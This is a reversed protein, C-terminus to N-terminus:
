NFLENFSWGFVGRMYVISSEKMVGVHKLM